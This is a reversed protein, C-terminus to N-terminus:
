RPSLLSLTRRAASAPMASLYRQECPDLDYYEVLRPATYADLHDVTKPEVVSIQNREIFTPVPVVLAFESPEGEYDSAMTIATQQGNRALIV